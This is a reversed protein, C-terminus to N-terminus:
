KIKLKENLKKYIREAFWPESSAKPAEDLDFWKVASNEGECARTEEGEDAELLFTVNMHLHSSLYRNKKEHGNVALIELSFIDESVPKISKLGTEEAAEKLAVALLDEDGDAHGGTWSWSDYINHYCMLVRTREANVIWASATIHATSNERSFADPNNRIFRLIQEKDREEQENYPKFAKIMECINM